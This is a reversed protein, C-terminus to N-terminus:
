NLSKASTLAYVVEMEPEPPQSKSQEFDKHPEGSESLEFERFVVDAYKLASSQLHL